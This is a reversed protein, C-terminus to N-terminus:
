HCLSYCKTQDFVVASLDQQDLPSVAFFLEFPRQWPAITVAMFVIVVCCGPFHPFFSAKTDFDNGQNKLPVVM